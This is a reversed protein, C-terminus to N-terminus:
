WRGVYGEAQAAAGHGALHVDVAGIECRALRLGLEGPCADVKM